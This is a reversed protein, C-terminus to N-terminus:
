PLLLSNSNASLNLVGFTGQKHRIRLIIVESVLVRYSIRYRHLTFARYSGDNDLKFKDASYRYPLTALAKCASLIDTKVQISNKLSDQKIYNCAQKLQFLADDDIVVKYFHVVM